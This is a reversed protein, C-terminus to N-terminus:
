DGEAKSDHGKSNPGSTASLRFRTRAILSKQASGVVLLIRRLKSGPRELRKRMAQQALFLAGNETITPPAAV